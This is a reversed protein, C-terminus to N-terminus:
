KCIISKKTSWSSYSKCSKGSASTYSKYARVRIYYKRGKKLKKIKKSLTKSSVSVTKANKMSKNDAYQIEYGSCSVKKWKATISNSKTSLSSIKTQKPKTATIYVKSYASYHKKGLSFVCSRIRFKYRKAPSLSSIKASSSASSASKVRSWSGDKYIEIEYGALNGAAKSWQLKIFDEGRGSSALSLSSMKEPTIVFLRHSLVRSDDKSVFDIRAEGPKKNNKYSVSYEPATGNTEVVLGPKIANGSYVFSSKQLTIKSQSLLNKDTSDYSNEDIFERYNEWFYENDYYKEDLNHEKYYSDGAKIGKENVLFYQYALEASGSDINIDDWTADVYYYKGDLAVINWAHCGENHPSSVFRVSYGLEKCLRYFAVAYGQCVCLGKVLAGYATACYERGSSNIASYDDYTTKSCIFDHVKKIIEYDTLNNTDIKSVFSNVVKDVQKEEEASDYYDFSLDITYYYYGNYVRDNSLFSFGYNQVVWRIYDGDKCGDSLADETAEVVFDEIKNLMQYTSRYKKTSIYYIRYSSNRKVLCDRIQTYLQAGDSYYTKSNYTKSVSDKISSVADLSAFNYVEEGSYFPNERMSPSVDDLAYCTLGSSLIM